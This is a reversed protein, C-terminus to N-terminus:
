QRTLIKFGHGAMPEMLASFSIFVFNFEVERVFSTLHINAINSIWLNSVYMIEYGHWLVSVIWSFTFKHVMLNM